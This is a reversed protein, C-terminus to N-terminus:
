GASLAALDQKFNPYSGAMVEDGQVPRGAGSAALAIHLMMAMQQDRAADLFEPLIPKTPGEVSLDDNEARVRAGLAGLQHKVAMMRDVDKFRLERVRRFVTTGKAWAAALSLIPMEDILSPVEEPAIETAKLPGAYEVTVSGTPEPKEQELSISVLAGMRDLVKLFGIRSGSLVINRATVRSDPMIAAGTLFFAAASLDGPVSFTEPLELRGPMIELCPPNLTARGGFANVLRETHDRTSIPEIVRSPSGASLAAFIVAGKLQASNEDNVYEIGHLGGGRITLPCRGSTTEARAGMQRLPDIVREMPRRRLHDDGDLVYLGPLGALVGSLLRMAASSGGCNLDLPEDGQHATQGGLGKITWKSGCGHAEGGLARFIELSVRVDDSDSLGSVSMEGHALISILVLRQSISKDGPPTFEGRLAM